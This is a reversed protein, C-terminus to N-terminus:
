NASPTWARVRPWRATPIPSVDPVAAPGSLVPVPDDRRFPGVTAASALPGNVSTIVAVPVHWTEGDRDAATVPGFRDGVGLGVPLDEALGVLRAFTLQPAGPPDDRHTIVDIVWPM